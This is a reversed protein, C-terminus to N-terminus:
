RGLSEARMTTASPRQRWSLGCRAPATVVRSTLRRALNEADVARDGPRRRRVLYEAWDDMLLRWREFLDSRAATLVLFKFALRVAQVAVGGRM